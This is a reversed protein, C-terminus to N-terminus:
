PRIEIHSSSKKAIPVSKKQPKQLNKEQPSLDSCLVEKEELSECWFYHNVKRKEKLPVKTM